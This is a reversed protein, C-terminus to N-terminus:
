TREKKATEKGQFKAKVEAIRARIRECEKDVARLKELRAALEATVKNINPKKM